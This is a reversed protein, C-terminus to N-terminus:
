ILHHPKRENSADIKVCRCWSNMAKTTEPRFVALMVLDLERLPQPLRLAKHGLHFM